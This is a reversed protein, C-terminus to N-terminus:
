SPSLQQFSIVSSRGSVVFLCIRLLAYVEGRSSNWKPAGNENTAAAAVVLAAVVSEDEGSFVPIWLIKIKSRKKPIHSLKKRWEQDRKGNIGNDPFYWAQEKKEIACPCRPLVVEMVRYWSFGAM